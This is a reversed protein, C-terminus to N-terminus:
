PATSHVSDPVSAAAKPTNSLFTSRLIKPETLTPSSQRIRVLRCSYSSKLSMFTALRILLWRNREAMDNPHIFVSRRSTHKIRHDAIMPLLSSRMRTPFVLNLPERVESSTVLQLLHACLLPAQLSAKLCVSVQYDPQIIKM